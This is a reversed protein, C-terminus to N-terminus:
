FPLPALREEKQISQIRQKLDGVTDVRIGPADRYGKFYCRGDEYQEIYYSDRKWITWHVYEYGCKQSSSSVCRWDLERLSKATVPLNDLVTERIQQNSDLIM